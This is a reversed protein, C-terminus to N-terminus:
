PILKIHINNLKLIDSFHIHNDFITKDNTIASNIFNTPSTITGPLHFSNQLHHSGRVYEGNVKVAAQCTGIEKAFFSIKYTGDKNDRVQTKTACDHGQRNRIEATVCDREEYCQEEQANRTTVAIQAELGVTM